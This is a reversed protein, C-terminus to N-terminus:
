VEKALRPNLGCHLHRCCRKWALRRDSKFVDWVGETPTSTLKDLTLYSRIQGIIVLWFREKLIRRDSPRRKTKKKKQPLTEGDFFFVANNVMDEKSIQNARSLWAVMDEGAFSSFQMWGRRQEEEQFGIQLM